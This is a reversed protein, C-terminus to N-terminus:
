SNACPMGKLVTGYLVRVVNSKRGVADSRASGRICCYLVTSYCYLLTRYLVTCYGNARRPPRRPGARGVLSLRAREPRDAGAATALRATRSARGSSVRDVHARLRARALRQRGIAGAPGGGDFRSLQVRM